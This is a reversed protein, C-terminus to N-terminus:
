SIGRMPYSVGCFHICEDSQRLFLNEQVMRTMAKIEMTMNLMDFAVSLGRSGGFSTGPPRKLRLTKLDGAKV